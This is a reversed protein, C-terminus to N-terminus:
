IVAFQKNGDSIYIVSRGLKAGVKSALIFESPRHTDDIVVLSNDFLDLNYLYGMRDDGNFAAPADVLLLDYDPVTKLARELKSVNFWKGDLPVYYYNTNYLNLYNPNYEISHVGIGANSLRESGKGSGLELITGNGVNTVIWNFLGDGIEYSM